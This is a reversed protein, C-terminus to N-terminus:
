AEQMELEQTTALAEDQLESMKEGARLAGRPSARSASEVENGDRDLLM